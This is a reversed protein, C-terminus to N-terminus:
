PPPLSPWREAAALAHWRAGVGAVVARGDGLVEAAVRGGTVPLYAVRGPTLEVEDAGVRVRLTGELALVLRPAGKVGLSWPGHGPGLVELRFATEGVDFVEVRGGDRAAAPEGGTPLVRHDAGPRPDLHRVFAATATPKETLGARLVNDSTAMVEVGAGQLYAHPIGPPVHLAEGPELHVYQLLLAALVAPDDPHQAALHVIWPGAGAGLAGGHEALARTAGRVEGVPMRLIRELAVRYAAPGGDLGDAVLDVSAAPIRALRERVTDPSALGCFAEFPSIAFLLEPKPWPDVFHRGAASRPIGAAEEAAFGAAAQDADPHLQLSLPRAVALLKLLFPLHVTGDVQDGLHAGPATAIARDLTVQRDALHLTAPADPHTGFWREAEPEETPAPRGELRALLEHSGWASRRLSGSLLLVGPLARPAARVGPIVARETM